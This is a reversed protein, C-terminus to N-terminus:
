DITWRPLTFPYLSGCCTTINWQCDCFWYQSDNLRKYCNVNQLMDSQQYFQKNREEVV